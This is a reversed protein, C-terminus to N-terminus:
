RQEAAIRDRLLKKGKRILYDIRHSPVGLRDEIERYSLGDLYKWRLVSRIDEPLRALHRSLDPADDGRRTDRDRRWEIREELAARRRVEQIKLVKNRERHFWKHCRNHAIGFLWSSFSEPDKLSPLSRFAALFVDQALDEADFCNGSKYYAIHFVAQQYRAVLTEFASVDGALSKAVLTADPPDRPVTSM